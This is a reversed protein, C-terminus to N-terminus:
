KSQMHRALPPIWVAACLGLPVRCSSACSLFCPIVNQQPILTHQMTPLATCQLSGACHAPVPLCNGLLAQSVHAIAASIYSELTLIAWNRTASSCLGEQSANVTDQMPATPPQQMPLEACLQASLQISYVSHRVEGLVESMEYRQLFSDNSFEYEPTGPAPLTPLSELFSRQQELEAPVAEPMQVCVDVAACAGDPPAVAM